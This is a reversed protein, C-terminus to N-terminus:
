DVLYNLSEPPAHFVYGNVNGRKEIASKASSIQSFAIRTWRYLTEDSSNKEEFNRFYECSKKAFSTLNELEPFFAGTGKLTHFVRFIDDYADKRRSLDLSYRLANLANSYTELMENYEELFLELLESHSFGEIEGVM